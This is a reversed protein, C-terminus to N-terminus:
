LACGAVRIDHSRLENCAFFLSGGGRAYSMMAEYVVMWWVSREMSCIRDHSEDAAAGDDAGEAEEM